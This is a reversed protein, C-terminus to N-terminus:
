PAALPVLLLFSLPRGPSVLITVELTDGGVAEVAVPDFGGASIPATVTTGTRWNRFTASLGTPLEGAPLSVYV